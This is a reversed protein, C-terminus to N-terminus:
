TTGTPTATRTCVTFQRSSSSTCPSTAMTAGSQWSTTSRGPFRLGSGPMASPSRRSSSEKRLGSHPRATQAASWSTSAMVSIGCRAHISAAHRTGASRSAALATSPSPRTGAGWASCIAENRRCSSLADPVVLSLRSPSTRQLPSRHGCVKCPNWMMTWIPQSRQVAKIEKGNRDRISIIGNLHGLALYQGDNTWSASLIKSSAKYKNVSKQEPSWLGFDTVTM